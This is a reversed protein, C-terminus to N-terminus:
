RSPGAHATGVPRYPPIRELKETRDERRSPHNPHQQDTHVTASPLRGAARSTLERPNPHAEMETTLLKGFRHLQHSPHGTVRRIVNMAHDMWKEPEEAAKGERDATAILAGQLMRDDERKRLWDCLMTDTNAIIDENRGGYEHGHKNSWENVHRHSISRMNSTLLLKGKLIIAEAILHADKEYPISDSTINPFGRRTIRRLLEEKQILQEQTLLRTRYRTGPDNLVNEWWIEILIRSRVDPKATTWNTDRDSTAARPDGDIYRQGNRPMLETVVTPPLWIHQDHAERWGSHIKRPGPKRLENTDFFILESDPTPTNM